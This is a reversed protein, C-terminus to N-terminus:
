WAAPLALVPTSGHRLVYDTTSGILLRRVGGLGRTGMVIIDARLRKAVKVIEPGPTGATVLYQVRSRRPMGALTRDVYQQLEATTTGGVSTNKFRTEAAIILLPDNVSMVILSDRARALRAAHRLAAQSYDSFDVPCLIRQFAPM